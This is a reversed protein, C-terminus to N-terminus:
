LRSPNVTKPCAVVGVKGFRRGGEGPRHIPDSQWRPGTADRGRQRTIHTLNLLITMTASTTAGERIRQHGDLESQEKRRTAL